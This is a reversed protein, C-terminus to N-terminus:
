YSKTHVKVDIPGKVAKGNKYYFLQVYYDIPSNSQGNTKVLLQINEMQPIYWGDPLLKDSPVQNERIPQLSTSKYYAEYLTENGSIDGKNLRKAPNESFANRIWYAEDDPQLQIVNNGNFTNTLRSAVNSAVKAEQFADITLNENGVIGADMFFWEEGWFPKTTGTVIWEVYKKGAEWIIGGEDNLFRLYPEGNEQDWGFEIRPRGCDDKFVIGNISIEMRNGFDFRGLLGYMILNHFEQNMGSCPNRVTTKATSYFMNNATTFGGVHSGEAIFTGFVQTSTYETKIFNSDLIPTARAIASVKKRDVIYFGSQSENSSYFYIYDIFEGNNYYIQGPIWQMVRPIRGTLGQEGQTGDRVISVDRLDHVSYNSSSSNRGVLRLYIANKNLEVAEKLYSESISQGQGLERWDDGSAHKYNVKYDGGPNISISDGDVKVVDIKLSKPSINGLRDIKITTREPRLSYVVGNEGDKGGRIKSVNINKTAIIESNISAIITIKSFDIQKRIDTITITKESENHSIVLGPNSSSVGISLNTENYEVGNIFMQYNIVADSYNSVTGDSTASLVINERDVDIFSAGVGNNGDRVVVLEEQDGIIDTEPYIFAVYLSDIDLALSSPNLGSSPFTKSPTSNNGKRTWYVIRGEKTPQNVIGTNKYVEAKIIETTYVGQSNIHLYDSSVKLEYSAVGKSKSIKFTDSGIFEGTEKIKANVLVSGNDNLLSTISFGITTGSVGKDEKITVNEPKLEIIYEGESMISGGRFVRITSKANELSKPYLNGESDAPVISSENSLDVKYVSQGDQGDKGDKGDKGKIKRWFYDDPNKSPVPSPNNYSIGEYEATENGIIINDYISPTGDEKRGNPYNSYKVWIYLTHGNDGSEGDKGDKGDRGDKGPEGKFLVFNFDKESYNYGLFVTDPPYTFDQDLIKVSNDNFEDTWIYLNGNEIVSTIMGKYYTFAKFSDLGLDKLEEITSFAQKADLPAMNSVKLSQPFDNYNEKM